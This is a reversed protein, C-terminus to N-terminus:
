PSVLVKVAERANLQTEFAEKIDALPFRHTILEATQVRGSQLLELARGWGQGGCGRLTINRYTMLSNTLAPTLEVSRELFGVQMMSGYFRLMNLGQQFGEPTGSCEFATAAMWGGTEERLAAVPDVQSPDFVAAAGLRAAMERRLPSPESVFVRSIGADTCVQLLCLGIMGAGLIVATDEPQLSTQEFVFCAISLPEVTAALEWSMDPPKHLFSDGVAPNPVAVYEAFAGDLGEGPVDVEWGRLRYGVGLVEDGARLGDVDPGVEAVEGAYEHGLIRNVSEGSRYRHLDTGCIGCARVKLLVEDPGISPRDVEELRIDRPGHLVAAKM